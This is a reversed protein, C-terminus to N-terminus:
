WIGEHIMFCATTLTIGLQNALLVAEPSEAGPQMWVNTIGLEACEELITLGVQPPVVIIVIEPLPEVDSLSKYLQKSLVQGGKSHVGEVLYGAKLLDSFIRNGYKKPNISVGIVAIHSKKSPHM